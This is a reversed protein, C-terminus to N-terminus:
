TWGQQTGFVVCNDETSLPTHKSTDCLLVREIVLSTRKAQEALQTDTKHTVIACVAIEGLSHSGFNEKNKM